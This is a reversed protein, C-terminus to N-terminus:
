QVFNERTYKFPVAKSFCFKKTPDVRPVTNVFFIEEYIVFPGFLSSHKDGAGELGLRINDPLARLRGLLPFM